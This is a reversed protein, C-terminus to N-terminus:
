FGVLDIKHHVFDLKDLTSGIKLGRMFKQNNTMNGFGNDVFQIDHPHLYIMNGLSRINCMKILSLPLLRFYGGGLMTLQQGFLTMGEFPYSKMLTSNINDGGHLRIASTSSSDIVYGVSSLLDIQYSKISFSPARFRVVEVGSIDELLEKSSLVDNLFTDNDMLSLDEHWMSHSGINFGNKVASIVLDPNMQAYKGVFFVTPKLDRDLCFDFFTRTLSASDDTYTDWDSRSHSVPLTCWTPEADFSLYISNNNM